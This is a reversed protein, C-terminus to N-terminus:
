GECSEGIEALVVIFEAAIDPNRTHEISECVFRVILERNQRALEERQREEYVLVAAALIIAVLLAVLAGYNARLSM